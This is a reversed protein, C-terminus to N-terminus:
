PMQTMSERFGKRTFGRKLPAPKAAERNEGPGTLAEATSCGNDELSGDTILNEIRDGEDSGRKFVPSQFVPKDELDDATRPSSSISHIDSLRRHSPIPSEM